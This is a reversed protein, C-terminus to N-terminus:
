TTLARVMGAVVGVGDNNIIKLLLYCTANKRKLRSCHAVHSIYYDYSTMIMGVGAYTPEQKAIGTGSYLSSMTQRQIQRPPEKDYQM